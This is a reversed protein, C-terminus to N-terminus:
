MVACNTRSSAPSQLRLRDNFGSQQLLQALEGQQCLDFQQQSLHLEGHAPLSCCAKILKSAVELQHRCAMRTAHNDRPALLGQGNRSNLRTRMSDRYNTLGEFLVARKKVDENGCRQLYTLLRKESVTFPLHNLWLKEHPLIISGFSLTVKSQHVNYLQLQRVRMALAQIARGRVEDGDEFCQLAYFNMNQIYDCGDQYVAPQEAHYWQYGATDEIFRRYAKGYYLSTVNEPAELREGSILWLRMSINDLACMDFDCRMSNVPRIGLGVLHAQLSVAFKTIEKPNSGPRLYLTFQGAQYFRKAQQHRTKSHNVAKFRMVVRNVSTLYEERNGSHFIFQRIKEILEPTYQDPKVNIRLKFIYEGLTDLHSAKGVDSYFQYLTFRGKYIDESVVGILGALDPKAENVHTSESNRKSESDCKSERSM